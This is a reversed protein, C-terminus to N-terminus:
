AVFITIIIQLLFFPYWFSVGLDFDYNELCLDKFFCFHDFIVSFLYM